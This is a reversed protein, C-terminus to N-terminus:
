ASEAGRSSNTDPYHKGNESDNTATSPTIILSDQLADQFQQSLTILLYVQAALTNAVENLERYENIFAEDQSDIWSQNELRNKLNELAQTM